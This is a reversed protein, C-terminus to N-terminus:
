TVEESGKSYGRSTKTDGTEMGPVAYEDGSTQDPKHQELRNTTLKMLLEVAGLVEFAAIFQLTNIIQNVNNLILAIHVTGYVQPVFQEVCVLLILSALLAAWAFYALKARKEYKKKFEYGKMTDLVKQVRELRLFANIMLSGFVFDLIVVYLTLILVDVAFM